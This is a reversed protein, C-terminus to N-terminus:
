EMHSKGDCGDRRVMLVVAVVDKSAQKRNDKIMSM